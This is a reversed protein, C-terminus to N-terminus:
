QDFRQAVGDPTIYHLPRCTVRGGGTDVDLILASSRGIDPIDMEGVLQKAFESLSPAHGIFCITDHPSDQIISLLREERFDNGLGAEIVVPCSFCLGVMRATEVARRLPSSYVCGLRVGAEMLYQNTSQQQKKGKLSLGPSEKTDSSGVDQLAHRLLILKM